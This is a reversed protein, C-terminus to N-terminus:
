SGALNRKRTSGWAEGARVNPAPFRGVAGFSREFDSIEKLFVPAPSPIRVRSGLRPLTADWPGGLQAPSAPHGIELRCRGVFRGPDSYSEVQRWASCRNAMRSRSRATGTTRSHSRLM